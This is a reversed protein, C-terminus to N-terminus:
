GPARRALRRLAAVERKWQRLDMAPIGGHVGGAPVDKSVGSKPALM